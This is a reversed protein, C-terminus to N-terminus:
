LVALSAAIKQLMKSSQMENAIYQINFSRSSNQRSSIILEHLTLFLTFSMVAIAQRPFRLKHLL